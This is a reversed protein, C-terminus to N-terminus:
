EIMRDTIDKIEAESFQENSWGSSFKVTDSKPLKNKPLDRIRIRSPISAGEGVFIAEQQALGSLASTMGSLGDPLFRSVHKQDSSNSLRLVLWTGCQSIVTSEVDSPRQSILVLGLGYKRGERAIRRIATQAEAYEAEGRDPVYRHAEECFLVVPDKVREEQKQYTKYQFLLRALMATLPGAVENPLGSLDLIRLFKGEEDGTLKGILIHIVKELSPSDDTKNKMLFQLRKDRRLVRLKDIISKFNKTFDGAPIREANGQRDFRAAQHYLIHNEIEDLDFPIPRDSDFTILDEDTKGAKLIASDTEEYGDDKGYDYASHAPEILGKSVLRAHTIAKLIVNNQSTAEFETKGIVLSRFEAASMLWYPFNITKATQEGNVNSYAELIIAEDSFAHSYEGHPDLMIIRPELTTRGRMELLSHVLAAVTGSKGSGTSGLIACHMGFMKDINMHCKTGEAGVYNAFPVLSSIADDESKEASSFLKSSEGSTVLEVKQQPLPYSSIGRSFSLTNTSSNWFGEGFLEVEMLRQDADAQNIESEVTPDESRLRLLTVLGFVLSRGIHIKVISGLQGVRYVRGEHIKSLETVTEALEIKISTGSVEVVRGICLDQSFEFLSM